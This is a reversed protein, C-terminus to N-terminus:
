WRESEAYGLKVLWGDPDHRKFLQKHEDTFEDQWQGTTGKRYTSTGTNGMNEVVLGAVRELMYGALTAEVGHAQGTRWFVYKLFRRATVEPRQRMDEFRMVHVWPVDLWGRYQMWREMLGAFKGHGVIAASLVAGHGHEQALQAFYPKAPHRLNDDDESVMHYSLSVAVDRLDRIIFVKAMGMKKIFDALEADYACHGIMYQGPQIRNFRNYTHWDPMMETLFSNGRLNGAWPNPLVGQAVTAAMLEALHLGAKPFGNLYIKPKALITQPEGEGPTSLHNHDVDDVKVVQGPKIEPM